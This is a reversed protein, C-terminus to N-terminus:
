LGFPRRKALKKITCMLQDEVLDLDTIGLLQHCRSETKGDHRRNQSECKSGRAREGQRLRERRVQEAGLHHAGLDRQHARLEVIVPEASARDLGDRARRDRQRLTVALDLRDREGDRRRRADDEVAVRRPDAREPLAHLCDHDPDVRVGCRADEGGRGTAVEAERHCEDVAEESRPHKAGLDGDVGAADVM